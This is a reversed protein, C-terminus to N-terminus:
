EPFEVDVLSKQEKFFAKCKLIMLLVYKKHLNQKSGKIYEMLSVCWEPTIDSLEDEDTIRPGDYSAPVIIASLDLNKSEDEHM